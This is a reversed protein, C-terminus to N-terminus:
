QRGTSSGPQDAGHGDAGKLSGVKLSAPVALCVVTNTVRAVPLLNARITPMKDVPLPTGRVIVGSRVAAHPRRTGFAGRQDRHRRRRVPRNEIVVPHGLVKALRDALLRATIDAGLRPGLPVVFKVSRQPWSQAAAPIAHLSLASV